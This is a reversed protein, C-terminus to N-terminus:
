SMAHSITYAVLPDSVRVGLAVNRAAFRKAGCVIVATIKYVMNFKQKMDCPLLCAASECALRAKGRQMSIIYEVIFM